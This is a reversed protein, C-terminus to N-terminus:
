CQEQTDIGKNDLCSWYISQNENMIFFPNAGNGNKYLVGEAENTNTPARLLKDIVAQDHFMSLNGWDGFGGGGTYNLVYTAVDNASNRPIDSTSYPVEAYGIQPNTMNDYRIAASARTAIYNFIANLSLSGCSSNRSFMICLAMAKEGAVTQAYAKADENGVINGQLEAHFILALFGQITLTSKGNNNWYGPHTVYWSYLKVMQSGTYCYGDWAIKSCDNSTTLKVPDDDCPTPKDNDNMCRHGSPDTYRVPNNLTYAYRDWAQSNGTGPIIIDAQAFRGISPDYWRSQYFYLGISVENRQGTYQYQTPTTGSTYRTEGWPKYRMESVLTGSTNTTLSTSGLHDSLLYSLTGNKRM